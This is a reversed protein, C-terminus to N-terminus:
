ESKTHCGADALEFPAILVPWCNWYGLGYSWYGLLADRARFGSSVSSSRPRRGRLQWRIPWEVNQHRETHTAQQGAQRITQPEGQARLNTCQAASYQAASYLAASYPAASYPAGFARSLPAWSALAEVASGAVVLWDLGVCERLRADFVVGHMWCLQASCDHASRSHHPLPELLRTRRGYRVSRCSHRRWCTFTLGGSDRAQSNEIRSWTCGRRM